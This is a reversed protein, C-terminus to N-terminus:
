CTSNVAPAMFSAASYARLSAPDTVSSAVAQFAGTVSALWPPKLMRFPLVLLTLKTTCCGATVPPACITRDSACAPPLLLM